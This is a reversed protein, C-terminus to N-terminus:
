AHHHSGTIEARQSASASPRCTGPCGPFRLQSETECYFILISLIDGLLLADEWGGPGQDLEVASGLGLGLVLVLSNEQKEM